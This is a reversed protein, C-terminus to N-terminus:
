LTGQGSQRHLLAHAADEGTVVAGEM